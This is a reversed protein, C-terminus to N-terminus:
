REAGPTPKLSAAGEDIAPSPASPRPSRPSPPITFYM